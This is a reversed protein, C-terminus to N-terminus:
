EMEINIKKIFSKCIVKLINYFSTYYTHLYTHMRTYIIKILLYKINGMQVIASSM